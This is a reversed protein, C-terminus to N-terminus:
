VMGRRRIIKWPLPKGAPVFFAAARKHGGGGFHKAVLSVDVSGDSRLSVYRQGGTTEYWIIGLPPRKEYLAHGIDSAMIPSNVAFVKYGEFLVEVFEDKVLQSVTKRRARLIAAGEQLARARGRPRDLMRVLRNWLKFDLPYSRLWSIIEWTRPLKLRWLDIDEIHRLLRPMPKEPHFYRWALGAGSHNLSFRYEHALRTADEVSEHHDLIVVRRNQAIIKKMIPVPYTFDIFYLERGRLHLPPKMDRTLGRYEARDKFKKWAAYAGGFGDAASCDLHYFVIPKKRLKTTM